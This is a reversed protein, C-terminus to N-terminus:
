SLGKGKKGAFHKLDMQLVARLVALIVQLIRMHSQLLETHFDFTLVVTCANQKRLDNSFPIYTKITTVGTGKRPPM